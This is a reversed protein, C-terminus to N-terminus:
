SFSFYIDIYGIYLLTKPIVSGTNVSNKYYFLFCFFSQFKIFRSIYTRNIKFFCKM